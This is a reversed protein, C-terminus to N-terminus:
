SKQGLAKWIFPSRRMFIDVLFLLLAFGVMWPLLPVDSSGFRDDPSYIDGEEPSLKGGSVRAIERLLSLNPPLTRLEKSFTPNLAIV